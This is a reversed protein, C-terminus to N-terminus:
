MNELHKFGSTGLFMLSFLLFNYCAHVVVSAALSRLLLRVACLVLSVCVLLLFPGISHGTQDAHMAAFLVSTLVSAVAMAPISWRPHDYADLSHPPEGHTKEAVWDFATCFAPLLFGRFAMEEFFPAFTVGFGFLVWAAGPIRFIKDIPADTPGPMLMGSVMALAFCAAAAALLYGFRHLAIGARWQLGTLFGKRWVIPFVLLAGAFTLIYFVGETGLTFHIETAAQQLNTVGFLHYHVGIRAVVSACFLACIALLGLIVVHGMNPIREKPPPPPAIYQKLFYSTDQQLYQQHDHAFPLQGNGAPDAREPDPESPPAPTGDLNLPDNPMPNGPQEEPEGTM